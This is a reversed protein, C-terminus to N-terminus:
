SYSGLIGTCGPPLQSIMHCTRWTEPVLGVERCRLVSPSAVPDFASEGGPLPVRYGHLSAVPWEVRRTFIDSSPINFKESGGCSFVDQIRRLIKLSTNRTHVRAM